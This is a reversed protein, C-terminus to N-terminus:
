NRLRQSHQEFLRAIITEKENINYEKKAEDQESRLHAQFEEWDIQTVETEEGDPKVRIVEPKGPGLWVGAAM